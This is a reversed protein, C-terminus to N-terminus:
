VPGILSGLRADPQETTPPVSTPNENVVAAKGDSSTEGVTRAITEDVETNTKKLEAQQAM